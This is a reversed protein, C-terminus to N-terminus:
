RLVLRDLFQLRPVHGLHVTGAYDLSVRPQLRGNWENGAPSLSKHRM